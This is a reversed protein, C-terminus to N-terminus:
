NQTKLAQPKLTEAVLAEDALAKPSLAGTNYPNQKPTKAEKAELLEEM